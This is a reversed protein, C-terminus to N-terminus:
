PAEVPAGGERNQGLIFTRVKPALLAGFRAYGEKSMHLGDPEFDKSTKSWPVEEDMAVFCCRESSRSSAFEQLLSNVRVRRENGFAIPTGATWPGLQRGQPITLAVTACGADHCLEHLAQLNTAIQEADAVGLDNTGGMLIVVSYTQRQLAQRLGIRRVCGRWRFGQPGGNAAHDMRQGRDCRVPRRHGGGTSAGM